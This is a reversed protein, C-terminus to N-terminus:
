WDEGGVVEREPQCRDHGHVVAWQDSREAKMAMLGCACWPRWRGESEWKGSERGIVYSVVAASVILVATIM